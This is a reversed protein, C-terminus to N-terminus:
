GVNETLRETHLAQETGLKLYPVWFARTEWGSSRKYSSTCVGGDLQRWSELCAPTLLLTEGWLSGRQVGTPFPTRKPLPGQRIIEAAAPSSGVFGPEQWPCAGAAQKGADSTQEKSEM